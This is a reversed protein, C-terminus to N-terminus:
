VFELTPAVKTGDFECKGVYYKIKSLSIYLEMLNLTGTQQQLFFM